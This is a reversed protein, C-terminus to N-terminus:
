LWLGSSGSWECGLYPIQAASEPTQQLLVRLANRHADPRPEDDLSM